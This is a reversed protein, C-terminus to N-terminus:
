VLGGMLPDSISDDGDELHGALRYEYNSGDVTIALDYWGNSRKLSWSRSDSEGPTLHTGHSSSGYADTIRVHVSESGRNSIELTVGNRDDDLRAHVELNVLHPGSVKGKFARY